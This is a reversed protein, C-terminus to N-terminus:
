IPLYWQANVDIESQALLANVVGTHGHIAAGILATYKCYPEQFNVNVDSHRLLAEVGELNGKRANDVLHKERNM